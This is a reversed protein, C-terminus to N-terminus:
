IIGFMTKMQPKKLEEASFIYILSARTRLIILLWLAFTLWVRVLAANECFSLAAMHIPVEDVYILCRNVKKVCSMISLFLSDVELKQSNKRTIKLAYCFIM